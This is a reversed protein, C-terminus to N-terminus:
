ADQLSNNVLNVYEVVDASEFGGWQGRLLPYREGPSLEHSLSDDIGSSDLGYAQAALKAAKLKEIAQTSTGEVMAKVWERTPEHTIKGLHKESINTAWNFRSHTRDMAAIRQIPTLSIKARQIEENLVDLIPKMNPLAKAYKGTPMSKTAMLFKVDGRKIIRNLVSVLRDHSAAGGVTMLTSIVATTLEDTGAKLLVYTDEPDLDSMPVIDYTLRGIKGYTSLVRAPSEIKVRPTKEAEAAKALRALRMREKVSEAATEIFTKADTVHVFLKVFLPDLDAKSKSTVVVRVDSPLVDFKEAWYRAYSLTPGAESHGYTTNYRMRGYVTVPTEADTVLIPQVKEEILKLHLNHYHIAQSPSNFFEQATTYTSPNAIGKKVVRMTLGDQPEVKHHLVGPFVLSMGKYTYPGEFGFGKAMQVLRLAARVNPQADLQTEYVKQGEAILASVRAKIHNKTKASYLLNERNNPLDVEGNDLKIVAQSLYGQILVRSVGIDARSWDLKYRVPGIMAVGEDGYRGLSGKRTSAWGLDSVETFLTDDYVSEEPAAGDILISGPAWGLFMGESVANRFQRVENTPITIKVGNPQDTDMEAMLGMSPAANERLRVVAVNKKGDKVSTVTFQTAIALGSKSGLGFGGIEDNSARKPSDGYQCYMRLTELDMGVGWDQIVLNPSLVTPLTVEVPRTQGAMLHADWANSTYERLVAVYPASYMDTLGKIIMGMSAASIGMEVDEEFVLNGQTTTGNGSIKM